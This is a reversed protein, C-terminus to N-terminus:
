GTCINNAAQEVAKEFAAVADTYRGQFFRITGLNTYIPAAPAVELARQLISAAEDPRDLLFYVAGLNRMVLANDPTIQLASEWLAEAEQYHARRFEFQRTSAPARWEKPGLEVAKQFAAEAEGNRGDAAFNMALGVHPMPNVPDLEAAKRFSADAEAREGARLRVFGVALRAAGLDGNLDVAHQATERALKMWQADPNTAHKRLYATSLHAYAISSNPDAAVARELLAIANDANQARDARALLAAAERTLEGSNAAGAATSGGDGPRLVGPARAARRRCRRGRHWAGSSGRDAHAPTPRRGPDRSVFDTRTAGGALAAHVETLSSFRDGPKKQLCRM